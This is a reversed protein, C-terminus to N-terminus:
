DPPLVADARPGVGYHGTSGAAQEALALVTVLQGARAETSDVTSVTEATAASTRLAALLGRPGAASAPAGVVVGDGADDLAQVLETLLLRQGTSAPRRRAGDPLLVVATSARQQPAPGSLLRGTTLTSFVSRASDDMPYGGDATTLLARATVVGARTYVSAEEPVDRDDIDALLRKSLVDVLPRATPDVLRRGVRLTTTVTGGSTEVDAAVADSVGTPVGPLALVVVSREALRDGLLDSSVAQAFGRDFTASRTLTRNRRALAAEDSGADTVAQVQSQLTGQLAGGGLAIGLALTFLLVSLLLITNRVRTM